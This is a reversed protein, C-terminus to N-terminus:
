DKSKRLSKRTVNLKFWGFDISIFSGGGTKASAEFNFFYFQFSLPLMVTLVKFPCCLLMFESIAFSGLSPFIGLIQIACVWNRCGLDM